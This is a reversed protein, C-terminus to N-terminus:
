EHAYAVLYYYEFEKDARKGSNYAIYYDYNGSYVKVEKKTELAEAMADVIVDSLEDTFVRFAEEIATESGGNLKANVRLMLEDSENYELASIATICSMAKKENEEDSDNLDLFTMVVNNVTYDITSIEMSGAVSNLLITDDSISMPTSYPELICIDFELESEYQLKMLRYMYLESFEIVGRKHTTEAYAFSSAILLAVTLLIAIIRKM